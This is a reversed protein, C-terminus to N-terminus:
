SSEARPLRRRNSSLAAGAVINGGSLTRKPLSQAYGRCFVKSGHQFKSFSPNSLTFSTEKFYMWDLSEDEVMMCSSKEENVALHANLGGM